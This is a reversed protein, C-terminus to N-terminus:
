DETSSNNLGAVAITSSTVIGTDEINKFKTQAAYVYLKDLLM